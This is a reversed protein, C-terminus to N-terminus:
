VPGQDCIARLDAWEGPSLVPVLAAAEAGRDAALIRSALDPHTSFHAMVGGVDGYRDRLRQFMVALASPPLGAEELLAHAFRDAEEEAGRSYGSTVAGAGVWGLVGGGTMDGALLAMIATAGAGELMGRVPDRNVVHGLEHALVAAIEEPTEAAQIMTDFFAIRGGAVAYANLIDSDGDDLVAVELPYLLELDGLVRDVIKDMAALGAPRKCVRLPKDGGFASRAQESHIEGLAIEAEVPLLRALVSAGGPIVVLLLVALLAGGFALAIAARGLPTPTPAVPIPPGAWIVDLADPDSVVLREPGGDSPAFTVPGPSAQDPLRRLGDRRWRLVTEDPLRLILDAGDGTMAVRRPRATDGDFFDAFVTRQMGDVRGTM